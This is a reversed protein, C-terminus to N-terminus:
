AVLINSVDSKFDTITSVRDYQDKAGHISLCPYGHNLLNRFLNDCREQSRVFILIKNNEFWECLLQLLRFFREKGDNPILEVIQLIDRNVESRGGVLIEVHDQLIGRVIIHMQKPITASFLVSQRDPRINLLIKNVQPGM